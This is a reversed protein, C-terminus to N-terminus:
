PTERRGSVNMFRVTSTFVHRKFNDNFPGLTTPGLNYTKTDTYGPSFDRARVLLHVKAAVVDTLQAATCPTASTCRVYDGDVSGNGRNTPSAEIPPAAWAIATGYNVATGSASLSDVGLEVRFGEVGEILAM